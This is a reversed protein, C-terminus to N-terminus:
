RSDLLGIIERSEADHVGRFSVSRIRGGKLNFVDIRCDNARRSGESLLLVASHGDPSWCVGVLRTKADCVRVVETPSSRALPQVMVRSSGPADARNSGGQEAEVWLVARGDPAFRPPATRIIPHEGSKSETLHNLVRDGTGDPHILRVDQRLLRPAESGAPHRSSATVLWRGDRSWDCVLETAPIPLKISKSGDAAIRWTQHV